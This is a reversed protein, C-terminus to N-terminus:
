CSTMVQKDPPNVLEPKHLDPVIHEGLYGMLFQYAAIERRKENGPERAYEAAKQFALRIELKTMIKTAM